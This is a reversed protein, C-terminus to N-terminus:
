QEFKVTFTTGEGLISKVSIEANNNQVIHKVISLGLGTGNVKKSHSKDVRYFREFVRDISDPPIGIGTDSVSLTNRATSVTVSGGPKNYKVANDCLNYILETMQMRNISVTTSDGVLSLSINQEKAHVSLNELIEKAAEYIDVNEKEADTGKEELASLAIIDDILTILRATEKEIKEAFGRVDEPKAIGTTIIQSYGYITTLPTKLEHSVNASFERRVQEAHQRQSVDFLFIVVGSIQENELVPTFYMQYAKKGSLFLLDNSKGELAKTLGTAFLNSGTLTYISKYKIDLESVGFINQACRNMSLVNLAKDMIILGDNMNTTITQLQYKQSKAKISQRRIESNQTNLRSLLPKLEEYMINQTVDTNDAIHKLPSLVGKIAARAIRTFFLYILSTALFSMFGIVIFVSPEPSCLAYVVCLILVVAMLLAGFLLLRTDRFLKRFM